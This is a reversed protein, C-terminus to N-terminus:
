CDPAARPRRLGRARRASVVADPDPPPRLRRWVRRVATPSSRRRARPPAAKWVAELGESWVDCGDGDRQRPRLEARAVGSVREKM